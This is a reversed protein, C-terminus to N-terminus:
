GKGLALHLVSLCTLSLLLLLLLPWLLPLALGGRQGAM